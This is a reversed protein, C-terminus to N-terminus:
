DRVILSGREKGVSIMLAKKGVGNELLETSGRVGEPLNEYDRIGSIDEDFGQFVQYETPRVDDMELGLGDTFNVHRGYDTAIRFEKMGRMVDAKALLFYDIANTEASYKILPIDGWAPRRPRKSGGGYEMAALRLGISQEVEDPSNKLKIIKLDHLDYKVKGDVIEYDIGFEKLEKEITHAWSGDEDRAKCRKESDIGGIESPLPGSGVRTFYPWRIV